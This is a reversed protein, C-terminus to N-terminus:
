EACAAGGSKDLRETLPRRYSPDRRDMTGMGCPSRPRDSEKLYSDLSTQTETMFYPIYESLAIRWEGNRRDFRDILRAGMVRSKGDNGTLFETMYSEVHAVDGSIDISENTILHHRKTNANVHKAVYEQLSDSITVYNIKADPWFASKLLQPDNRDLGRVFRLYAEHIQQRVMLYKVEARLQALEEDMKAGRSVMGEGANGSGRAPEGSLCISSGVVCSTSLAMACSLLMPVKRSAKNSRGIGSGRDGNPTRM